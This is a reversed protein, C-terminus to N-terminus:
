RQRVKKWVCNGDMMEAQESLRGSKLWNFVIVIQWIM